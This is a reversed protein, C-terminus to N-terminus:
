TKDERRRLFMAPSAHPPPPPFFIVKGSTLRGPPGAQPCRPGLISLSLTGRACFNIVFQVTHKTFRCIGGDVKRTHVGPVIVGRPEGIGPQRERREEKVKKRAM